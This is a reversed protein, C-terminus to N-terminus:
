LGRVMRKFLTLMDQDDMSGHHHVQRWSGFANRRFIRTTRIALPIAKAYCRLSGREVGVAIFAGDLWDLTYDHLEVKMIVPGSLLLRYREAIAPWGRRVGGGFCVMSIGDDDDWVARVGECDKGNFAAYFASLSSLPTDLAGDSDRGTIPPESPTPAKAPFIARGLQLGDAQVKEEWYRHAYRM